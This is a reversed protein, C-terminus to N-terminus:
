SVHRIHPMYLKIHDTANGRMHHSLFELHNYIKRLEQTAMQANQIHQMFALYITAMAVFVFMLTFACIMCRHWNCTESRKGLFSTTESPTDEGMSVSVYDERRPM